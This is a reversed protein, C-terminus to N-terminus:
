LGSAPIAYIGTAVATAITRRMRFRGFEEGRPRLAEAQPSCNTLRFFNFRQNGLNARIIQAAPQLNLTLEFGTNSGNNRATQFSAM